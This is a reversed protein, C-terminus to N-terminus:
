KRGSNAEAKVEMEVRDGVKLLFNSPNKMGWEVYPITFHTTATYHSGDAQVQLHLTLDHEGGHIKFRGHVDIESSGQAALHGDVHDPSFVADPYAPSELVEKQMRKDRSGNGSQGSAVDIMIEGSAKGGDPDLVMSGRKLKFTGHVAHLTSHLVFAIETKSPDLQFVQDAAALAGACFLLLIIKRV